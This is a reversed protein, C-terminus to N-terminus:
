NKGAARCVAVFIQGLNASKGLIFCHRSPRTASTAATRCDATDDTMTGPSPQWRAERFLIM